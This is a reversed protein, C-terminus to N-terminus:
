ISDDAELDAVGHPEPHLRRVGAMFAVMVGVGEDDALRPPEVAIQTGALDLSGGAFLGVGDERLRGSVRSILMAPM